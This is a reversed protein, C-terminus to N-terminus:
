DTWEVRVKKDYCGCAVVKRRDDRYHRKKYVVLATVLTAVDSSKLEHWLTPRENEIKDLVAIYAADPFEHGNARQWAVHSLLLAAAVAESSPVADPDAFLTLAMEKLILSLQKRALAVM